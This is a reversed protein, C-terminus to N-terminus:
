HVVLYEALDGPSLDGPAAGPFLDVGSERYSWVALESCILRGDPHDRSRKGRLHMGFHRLVFGAISGWDYPKGVQEFAILAIDDRQTDTLPVNAWTWESVPCTRTRVGDPMAEVIQIQGGVSDGTAVCAHGWRSLTGVRVCWMEWGTGAQLGFDGRLPAGLVSSHALPETM